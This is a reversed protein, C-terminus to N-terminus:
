PTEPTASKPKRASATIAPTSVEIPIHVSCDRVRQKGDAAYMTAPGSLTKGDLKLDATIRWQGKSSQGPLWSGILDLSVQGSQLTGIGSEIYRKSESREWLLSNGSVHLKIPQTWSGQSPNTLLSGCQLTGQYSGDLIQAQTVAVRSDHTLDSVAPVSAASPATTRAIVEKSGHQQVFKVIEQRMHDTYKNSRCVPFHNYINEAKACKGDIPNNSGIGGFPADWAHTAGEYNHWAYATKLAKDINCVNLPTAKDISGTFVITPMAYPGLPPAFEADTSGNPAAGFWSEKAYCNPYLSIGGRYLTRVEQELSHGATFTRLVTWGGQSDGVLFTKQPDAGQAKTFRAAAVADLLRMNVGFQTWTLWNETKGRSWYSDLMLVNADLERILWEASAFNAPSLGHGGHMIIFTPRESVLGVRPNWSAILNGKGIYPPVIATLSAVKAALVSDPISWSHQQVPATQNVIPPQFKDINVVDDAAWAPLAFSFMAASLLVGVPIPHRM